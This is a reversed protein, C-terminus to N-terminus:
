IPLHREDDDDCRYLHVGDNRNDTTVAARPAAGIRHKHVVTYQPSRRRIRPIYRSPTAHSTAISELDANIAEEETFAPTYGVEGGKREGVGDETTRPHSGAICEACRGGM